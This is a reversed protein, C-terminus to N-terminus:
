YEVPGAWVLWCCSSIILSSQHDMWAALGFVLLCAYGLVGAVTACLIQMGKEPESRWRAGTTREGAPRGASPALVAPGGM